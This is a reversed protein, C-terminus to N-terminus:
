HSAPTALNTKLATLQEATMGFGTLYDEAAAQLDVGSLDADKEVGAITRLMDLINNKVILQYKEPQDAQTVGYYNEYSVMYDAVVEDLSAGMLCELLASTFGARDKGETCHVLYPGPQQSLKALGATLDAGFSESSYDVPMGLPIVSGAEYLSKYYPSAFDEAALYGDIDEKHDALNLVTKVGAKQILADAYSARGHENNVPSASRYLAGEAIDGVTVARFNAFVADSSYDSREDTYVLSNLEQTDREAGKQALSITATSGVQVGATENLKGYNICVALYTDGPYARLMAEGKDVYYGNFYPIGSLTYGNDFVVDVTDGLAFGAKEFDAISIDLVAHGYKEIERVAGSMPEPAETQTLSSFQMLIQALEARQAAGNPNLYGRSDGKLIDAYYCFSMGELAWSPIQDYDPAERMAMGGEESTVGTLAAYRSLLVALEARTITRDGAFTKDAPVAALGEQEAWVAATGYWKGDLDTFSTKADVAPAGALNYLTQIVMGRTVTAAPSFTTKGTGSMIGEATVYSVADAYWANEAVDTFASPEAALAPAALSLVLAGTLALTLTKKM